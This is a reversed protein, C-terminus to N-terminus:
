GLVADCPDAITGPRVERCHLCYFFCRACGCPWIFRRNALRLARCDSGYRDRSSPAFIGRATAVILTAATIQRYACASPARVHEDPVLAELIDGTFRLNLSWNEQRAGNRWRLPEGVIGTPRRDLEIPHDGSRHPQLSVLPLVDAEAAATM